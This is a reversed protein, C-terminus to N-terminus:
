GTSESTLARAPSCPTARNTAPSRTFCPCRWTARAPATGAGGFLTEPDSLHCLFIQRLLYWVDGFVVDSIQATGSCGSTCKATITYSGPGGAATPKLFAKWTANGGAGAVVTAAVSYPSGTPRGDVFRQVTVSIVASSAAGALTGYVAAKAPARQLVMSSGLAWSFCIDSSNCHGAFPPPAPASPPSPPPPTHPQVALCLGHFTRLAGSSSDFVFNCNNNGKCEGPFRGQPGIDFIQILATKNSGGPQMNARDTTKDYSFGYDATSGTEAPLMISLSANPASQEWHSKNFAWSQWPLGGGCAAMYVFGGNSPPNSCTACLGGQKLEGSDSLSWGKATPLSCEGIILEPPFAGGPPAAAAAAAAAVTTTALLVGPLPLMM